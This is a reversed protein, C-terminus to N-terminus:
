LYFARRGFVELQTFKNVNPPRGIVDPRKVPVTAQAVGAGSQCWLPKVYHWFLAM